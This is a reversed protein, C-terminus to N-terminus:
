YISLIRQDFDKSSGEVHFVKQLLRQRIKSVNTLDKDLILAIASPKFHLRILICIRYEMATLCYGRSQLSAYFEPIEQLVLSQLEQWDSETPHPFPPCQMALFKQTIAARNLNDETHSQIRQLHQAKYAEVSNKLQEVENELKSISTLQESKEKQLERLLTQLHALQRKEQLYNQFLFNQKQKIRV